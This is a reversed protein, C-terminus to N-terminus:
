TTAETEMAKGDFKFCFGQNIAYKIVIITKVPVTKMIIQSIKWPLINEFETSSDYNMCIVKKNTGVFRFCISELTFNLCVLLQQLLTRSAALSIHALLVFTNMM